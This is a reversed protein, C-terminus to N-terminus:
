LEGRVLMYYGVMVCSTGLLGLLGNVLNLLHSDLLNFLLNMEYLIFSLLLLGWGGLRIWIWKKRPM